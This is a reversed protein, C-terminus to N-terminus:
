ALAASRQLPRALYLSVTCTNVKSGPPMVLVSNLLHGVHVVVVCASDRFPHTTRGPTRQTPRVKAFGATSRRLSFDTHTCASAPKRPKGGRWKESLSM